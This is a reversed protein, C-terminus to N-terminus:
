SFIACLLKMIPITPFAVTDILMKSPRETELTERRYFKAFMERPNFMNPFCKYFWKLGDLSIKTNKEKRKSYTYKEKVM